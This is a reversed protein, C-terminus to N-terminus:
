SKPPRKLFNAYIEQLALFDAMDLQMLQPPTLGTLGAFLQLDEEAPVMNQAKGAKVALINDRVTPRRVTLSQVPEGNVEIPLCLELTCFPQFPDAQRNTATPDTSPTTDPNSHTM